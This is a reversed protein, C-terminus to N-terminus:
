GVGKRPELGVKQAVDTAKGIWKKETKSITVGKSASVRFFVKSFGQLDKEIDAIRTDFNSEYGSDTKGETEKAASEKKALSHELQRFANKMKNATASGQQAMVNVANTTDKIAKTVNFRKTSIDGLKSLDKLTYKARIQYKGMGATLEKARRLTPKNVKLLGNIIKEMNQVNLRKFNTINMIRVAMGKLIKESYYEDIWKGFDASAVEPQPQQQQEPTGTTLLSEIFKTTAYFVVFKVFDARLQPIEHSLASSVVGAVKGATGEGGTTSHAMLIRNLKQINPSIASDYLKNYVNNNKFFTITATYPSVGKDQPVEEKGEKEKEGSPDDKFDVEAIINNFEDEYINNM